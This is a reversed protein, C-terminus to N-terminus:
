SCRNDGTSPTDCFLLISILKIRSQTLSKCFKFTSYYYAAEERVDPGVWECVCEYLAYVTRGDRVSNGSSKSRIYSAVSVSAVSIQLIPRQVGTSDCHVSCFQILNCGRDIAWLSSKTALLSSKLCLRFTCTQVTIFANPPLFSCHVNKHIYIFVYKFAREACHIYVWLQQINVTGCSHM